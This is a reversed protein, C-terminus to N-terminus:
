PLWFCMTYLYGNGPEHWWGSHTVSCLWEWLVIRAHQDTCHRHHSSQMACTNDLVSTNAHKSQCHGSQYVLILCCSSCTCATLPLVLMRLMQLKHHKNWITTVCLVSVAFATYGTAPTVLNGTLPRHLLSRRITKWMAQLRMLVQHRTKYIQFTM